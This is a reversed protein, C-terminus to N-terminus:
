DYFEPVAYFSNRFTKRNITLPPLIDCLLCVANFRLMQTLGVIRPVVM